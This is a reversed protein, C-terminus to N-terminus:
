CLVLALKQQSKQLALADFLNAVVDLLTDLWEQGHVVRAHATSCVKRKGFSMKGGDEKMKRVVFKPETPKNSVSFSDNSRFFLLTIVGFVFLLGLYLGVVHVIRPHRCPKEVRVASPVPGTLRAPRSSTYKIEMAEDAVVELYRRINGGGVTTSVMKAAV